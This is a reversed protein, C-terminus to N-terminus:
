EPPTKAQAPTDEDDDDGSLQSLLAALASDELKMM